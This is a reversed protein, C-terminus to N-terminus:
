LKGIVDNEKLSKLNHEFASETKELDEESYKTCLVYWGRPFPYVGSNATALYNVYTTQAGATLSSKIKYDEFNKPGEYWIYKKEPPPAKNLLNIEITTPNDHPLGAAIATIGMDEAMEEFSKTLRRGIKYLRPYITDREKEIIKMMAIGGSISIPQANWTGGAAVRVFKNWYEDKFSYGDLIEKKGCIAGIPAGGGIIKGLTTIDPTVGYYEQAGGAAYRMGSVVEDLIFVVGYQKTLERLGEIYEVTYHQNGQLIICAVDGDQFAKEAAELNNYSIMKVDDKVGQPIGRVNYQGFPPGRNAILTMDSKGHYCRAHLVIKENGTYVRSLRIALFVAETGSSVARVYGEHASPILKRIYEAWEIELETSTGIHMAKDVYEHVADLVREDGYGLLLSGHGMVYDVYENGDVDWKRTGEARTAYIPFPRTFRGDHTVGSPYSIKAREYLKQSKQHKSIYEKELESLTAL